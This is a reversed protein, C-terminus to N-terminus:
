IRYVAQFKKRLRIDGVGGGEMSGLLPSPIMRQRRYIYIDMTWQYCRHFVTYVTLQWVLNLYRYRWGGTELEHVLSCSFLPFFYVIKLQRITQIWGRDAFFLCVNGSACLSSLCISYCTRRAQDTSAPPPLPSPSPALCSPMFSLLLRELYIGEILPVCKIFM